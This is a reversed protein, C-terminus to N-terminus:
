VFCWTMLLALFYLLKRNKDTCLLWLVTLYLCSVSSLASTSRVDYQLNQHMHLSPRILCYKLMSFHM